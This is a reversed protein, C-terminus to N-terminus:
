LGGAERDQSYRDTPEPKPPEIEKIGDLSLRGGSLLQAVIFPADKERRVSVYPEGEVIEVGPVVDGDHSVVAGLGLEKARAKLKDGLESM